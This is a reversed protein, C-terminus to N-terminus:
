HVKAYETRKEIDELLFFTEPCINKVEKPDVFYYKEFACCFYEELSVVSYPNLFLNPSINMVLNYGVVDKWFKDEEQSFDTTSFFNRPVKKGEFSLLRALHKKKGFYETEMEKISIKEDDKIIKFLNHGIEHTINLIIKEESDIDNQIFIAGDLLLCEIERKKLFKHEGIYVIDIGYSYIKPIKYEIKSCINNISVNNIFNGNFSIKNYLKKQIKM